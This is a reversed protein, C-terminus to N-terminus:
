GARSLSDGTPYLWKVESIWQLMRKSWSNNDYAAPLDMGYYLLMSKIHCKIRRLNKVLDNRRRFLSRLQEQKEDPVYIGHLRGACLHECLYASDIKDTKSSSQKHVRPLDGPNVVLVKYGVATLSRYIHYGCCCSEYCCEVAYGPFHLHIHSILAAPNAKMSFRKRVGNEDRITVAWSKKHVDLGVFLLKM